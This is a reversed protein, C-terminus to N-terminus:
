QLFLYVALIVGLAIIAIGIKKMLSETKLSEEDYKAGRMLARPNAILLIGLVVALVAYVFDFNSHEM